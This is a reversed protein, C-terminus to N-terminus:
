LAITLALGSALFLFVVFLAWAWWRRSSDAVLPEVALTSTARQPLAAPPLPSSVARPAVGNAHGNAQEQSLATKLREKQRAAAALRNEEEAEELLAARAAALIFEDKERLAAERPSLTHGTGNGHGNPHAVLAHAGNLSPAPAQVAHATELQTARTIGQTHALTQALAIRVSQTEQHLTALQALLREREQEAEAGLRVREAEAHDQVAQVHRRADAISGRLNGKEDYLSNLEGTLQEQHLHAEKLLLACSTQVQEEVARIGEIAEDMAQTLRESERRLRLMETLLKERRHRTRHATTASEREAQEGLTRVGEAVQAVVSQIGDPIAAHPQTSHALRQELDSIQTRLAVNQSELMEVRRQLLRRLLHSQTLHHDSGSM